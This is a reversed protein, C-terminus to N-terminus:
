LSTIYYSYLYHIFLLYLPLIILSSYLSYLFVSFTILKYPKEEWKPIPVGSSFRTTICSCSLVSSLYTPISLPLLALFLFYLGRQLARQLSAEPAWTALTSALWSLLSIGEAKSCLSRYMWPLHRGRPQSTSCSHNYGHPPLPEQCTHGHQAMSM